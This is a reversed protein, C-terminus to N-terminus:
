AENVTVCLVYPRDGIHTALLTGNTTWDSTKPTVSVTNSAITITGAFSTKTAGDYIPAVICASRLTVAKGERNNGTIATDVALDLTDTGGAVQVGNHDFSILYRKCKFNANEAGTADDDGRDLQVGRVKATVSAM